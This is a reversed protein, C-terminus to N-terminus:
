YYYYCAVAFFSVCQSNSTDKPLALRHMSDEISQEGIWSKM